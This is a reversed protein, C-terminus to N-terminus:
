IATQKGADLRLLVHVLPQACLTTPAELRLAKFHLSSWLVHFLTKTQPAEIVTLQPPYM